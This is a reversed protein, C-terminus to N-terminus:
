NKGSLSVQIDHNEKEEPNSDGNEEEPNDENWEELPDPSDCKRPGDHHKVSIDVGKDDKKGMCNSKGRIYSKEEEDCKGKFNSQNVCKVCNDVVSLKSIPRSAESGHEMDPLGPESDDGSSIESVMEDHLLMDIDSESGQDTTIDPEGELAIDVITVEAKEKNSQSGEESMRKPEVDNKEETDRKRNNGSKGTTANSKGKDDSKSEKNSKCKKKKKGIYGSLISAVSLEVLHHNSAEFGHEIDPSDMKSDEGSSIGAIEEDLLTVNINTESAQNMSFESERQLAIEVLAVVKEEQAKIKGKNTLSHQDRFHRQMGLESPGTFKCLNCSITYSGHSLSQSSSSAVGHNVEEASKPNKKQPLTKGHSILVHIKLDEFYKSTFNCGEENCCRNPEEEM